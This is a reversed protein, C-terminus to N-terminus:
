TEIPAFFNNNVNVDLSLWSNLIVLCYKLLRYNRSVDPEFNGNFKGGHFLNNRTYCVACKLKFVNSDTPQFQRTKWDLQGGNLYQIKPPSNLLYDVADRLEM